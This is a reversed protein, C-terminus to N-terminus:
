FGTGTIQKYNWRTDSLHTPSIFLEKLTSTDMGLYGVLALSPRAVDVSISALSLARVEVAMLIM